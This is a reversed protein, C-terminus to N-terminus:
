KPNHNQWSSIYPNPEFFENVRGVWGMFVGVRSLQSHLVQLMDEKERLFQDVVAVPSDGSLYPIHIPPPIRYLTQFPTLDLSTHYNTNYWYEALSLWQSWKQPVQGTICRLYGELYRNVVETQGDTQPHYASSLHLNVGQM